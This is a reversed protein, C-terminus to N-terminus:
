TIYDTNICAWKTAQDSDNETTYYNDHKDNSGLNAPEFWATLSPNKLAIFVLLVVEKPPSTFVNAGHRLNKSCTLSWKLYSLSLLLCFEAVMERGTEGRKAVVHRQLLWFLSSQQIIRSHNSACYILFYNCNCPVSQVIGGRLLLWYRTVPDNAVWSEVLELIKKGM